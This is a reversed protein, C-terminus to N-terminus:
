PPMVHLLTATHMSPLVPSNGDPEQGEKGSAGLAAGAHCTSEDLLGANAYRM